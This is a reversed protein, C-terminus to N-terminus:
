RRPLTLDVTRTVARALGELRLELAFRLRRHRVLEHRARAHLRFTLRVTSARERLVVTSASGLTTTTAGLRGRGRVALKGGGTARASIAIRGTRALLRRQRSTLAAFALRKSAVVPASGLASTQSSTENYKDPAAASRRLCDAGRCPDSPAPPELFGGGARVDYVDFEESDRDAGVLAARTIVFINRGDDSVEGIYSAADGRGSTLLSVEGEEYLYADQASTQDHGTLRDNSTFVVAGDVTLSRNHPFSGAPLGPSQEEIEAAGQSPTGDPRCSVCTVRDNLVDYRYVQQFGNSAAGDISAASLILAYRGNPTVRSFREGPLVKAIFRTGGGSTWVYANNDGPQAGGDLASTSTFYLHSQDDSAIAGAVNLGAPDGADPTIQTVTQSALDFRYIGGGPTAADTLQDASVFYASAGDHTASIFTGNRPVGLPDGTRESQSVLITRAPTAEFDRLYLPTAAPDTTKFYVRRANDSVAHDGGREVWPVQERLEGVGLGRRFEGGAYGAQRAPPMISGDTDVSVPELSQGDTAYIDLASGKFVLRDLSASAGFIQTARVGHPAVMSAVGTAVDLWFGDGGGIDDDPTAPLNTFVLARSFDTSFARVTTTATQNTIAGFSPPDASIRAWGSPGRRALTYSSMGAGRAGDGAVVSSYTVANGDDSITTVRNTDGIDLTAPNVLEYARCDPLAAAQQQARVAANPCSDAAASTGALANLATLASVTLGMLLCTVRSSQHM